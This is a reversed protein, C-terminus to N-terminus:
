EFSAPRAESGKVEEIEIDMGHKDFFDALRTGFGMEKAANDESVADRLINRVEEEMSRGHLRARQALREKIDQDLNRVVLQAM